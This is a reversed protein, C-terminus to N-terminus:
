YKEGWNTRILGKMMPAYMTIHNFSVNSGDARTLTLHYVRMSATIQFVWRMRPDDASIMETDKKWQRNEFKPNEDDILTVATEDSIDEVKIRRLAPEKLALLGFAYFSERKEKGPQLAALYVEYGDAKGPKLGERTLPVTIQGGGSIPVIKAVEGTQCGAVICLLPLTIYPLYRSRM